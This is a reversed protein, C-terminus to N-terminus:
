FYLLFTHFRDFCTRESTVFNIVTLLKKKESSFASTERFACVRSVRVPPQESRRDRGVLRINATAKKRRCRSFVLSHLLPVIRTNAFLRRKTRRSSAREKATEM